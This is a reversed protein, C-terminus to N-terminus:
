FRPTFPFRPDRESPSRYPGHTVSLFRKAPALYVLLGDILTQVMMGSARRGDGFGLRRLSRSLREAFSIERWGDYERCAVRARFTLAPPFRDAFARLAAISGGSRRCVSPGSRDSNNIANSPNPRPASAQPAGVRDYVLWDARERSAFEQDCDECCPNFGPSTQRRSISYKVQCHPCGFNEGVRLLPM